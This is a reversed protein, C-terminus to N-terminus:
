GLFVGLLRFPGRAWRPLRQVWRGYRGRLTYFEPVDPAPPPPGLREAGAWMAQCTPCGRFHDRIEKSRSFWTSGRVDALMTEYLDPAHERVWACPEIGIEALAAATWRDMALMWVVLAAQLPPVAVAGAEWASVEASTTGVEGAMQEVTWGRGERVVRVEEATAVDTRPGLVRSRTPAVKM